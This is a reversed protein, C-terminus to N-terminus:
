VLSFNHEVYTSNIPLYERSTEFSILIIVFVIAILLVIHLITGVMKREDEDM